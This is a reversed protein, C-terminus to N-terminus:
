ARDSNVEPFQAVVARVRHADEDSLRRRWAEPLESRVRKTQYSDGPRDSADLSRESAATWTLRLSEFMRRYGEHPDAALQDHRVVLWEPHAATNHRQVTMLLAACWAAREAPSYAPSPPPLGASDVITRVQPDQDLNGLPIGLALWSAVVNLPDREVIVVRPRYRATLWDISFTALVTKVVVSDARRRAPLTAVGLSRMLLALPRPPVRALARSARQLSHATLWGGEFAPAWLAAYDPAADTPAIIPHLGRRARVPAALPNADPNDPEQVLATRAATGLVEAVWTTGSRPVGVVLIRNM